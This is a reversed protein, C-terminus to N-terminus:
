AVALSSVRAKAFRGTQAKSKLATLKPVGGDKQRRAASPLAYVKGKPKSSNRAKPM